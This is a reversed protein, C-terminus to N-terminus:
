DYDHFHSRQTWTDLWRIEFNLGQDKIKPAFSFNVKWSLTIFFTMDNDIPFGAFVTNLFQVTVNHISYICSASLFSKNSYGLGRARFDAFYLSNMTSNQCTQIFIFKRAQIAHLFQFNQARKHM